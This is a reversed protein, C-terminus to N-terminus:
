NYELTLLVHSRNMSHTLKKAFTDCVVSYTHILENMAYFEYYVLTICLIATSAYRMRLERELIFVFNFYIHHIAQSKRRKVTFYLLIYSTM